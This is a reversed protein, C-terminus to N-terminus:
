RGGFVMLEAGAVSFYRTWFSQLTMWAQPTLGSPSAGYVYIRYGELPVVLGNAKTRELLREPGLAILAPMPLEKTENMMDSFLWGFSSSSFTSVALPLIEIPVM